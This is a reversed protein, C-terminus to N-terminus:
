GEAPANPDQIYVTQLRTMIQRKKMKRYPQVVPLGLPSTWVVSTMQEKNIRTAPFALRKRGRRGSGSTRTSGDYDLDADGTAPAPM